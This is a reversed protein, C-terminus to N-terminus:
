RPDLSEILLLAEGYEVTRGDEILVEKVRGRQEAEIENMMKMAEILCLVQGREVVDGLEVFPPQGPAPARHFTGVMPSTIAHERAVPVPGKEEARGAVHVARRPEADREHGARVLRMKTGGSEVELEVLAHEEMLAVLRTIERADFGHQMRM